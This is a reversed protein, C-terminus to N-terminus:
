VEKHVVTPTAQATPTILIDQISVHAPRTAAFLVCEAIDRGVLPEYGTYVKAAREVDGHFRVESFETEVLGPDINCTRVGTGNLDIQLSDSLMKVAAKTASYVNGGRYAQRGAISAINVVLGKGRAIMGPLFARSVYLLGKVNTDIMEEWDQLSGEQLPQLGRSLGANNILVDPSQLSKPLSQVASVVAANDRVDVTQCIVSIGYRSKLAEALDVLKDTRRAWLVLDSGNEAFIEACSQGIGSSAGTIVVNSQIM